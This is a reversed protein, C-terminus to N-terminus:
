GLQELANSVRDQQEILRDRIERTLQDARDNLGRSKLFRIYTAASLWEQVPDNFELRVRKEFILHIMKDSECNSIALFLLREVVARQSELDFLACDEVIKEAFEKRVVELKAAAHTFGNSRQALFAKDIARFFEAFIQNNNNM